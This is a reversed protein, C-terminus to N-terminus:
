ADAPKTKAPATLSKFTSNIEQQCNEYAMGVGFGSGFVVPWMRRKFLVISFTAGVFLGGAFKILSDTLCRDWKRGLEDESRSAMKCM